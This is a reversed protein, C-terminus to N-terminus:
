DSIHAAAPDTLQLRSVTFVHLVFLQVLRLTLATFDVQPGGLAAVLSHESHPSNGVSAVHRVEANNGTGSEMCHLLVCM